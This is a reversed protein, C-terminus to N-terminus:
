RAILYFFVNLIQLSFSEKWFSNSIKPNFFVMVSILYEITPNLLLYPLSGTELEVRSSNPLWWDTRVILLFNFFSFFWCIKWSRHSLHPHLALGQMWSQFRVPCSLSSMAPCPLCPQYLLSMLPCQLLFCQWPRFIQGPVWSNYLRNPCSLFNFVGLHCSDNCPQGKM